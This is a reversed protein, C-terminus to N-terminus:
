VLKNENFLEKLFQSYSCNSISCLPHIHKLTRARWNKFCQKKICMPHTLVFANLCSNFTVLDIVIICLSCIYAGPFEM